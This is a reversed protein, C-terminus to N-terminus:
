HPRSILPQALAGTWSPWLVAGTGAHPVQSAIFGCSLRYLPGPLLATCSGQFATQPRPGGALSSHQPLLALCRPTVLEQRCAGIARPSEFINLLMVQINRTLQSYYLPLYTLESTEHQLCQFEGQLEGQTGGARGRPQLLAPCEPGQEAHGCHGSSCHWGQGTSHCVGLTGPRTGPQVQCSEAAYVPVCRQAKSAETVSIYAVPLTRATERCILSTAKPEQHCQAM